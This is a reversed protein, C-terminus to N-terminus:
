AAQEFMDIYNYAIADEDSTNLALSYIEPRERLVHEGTDKDIKYSYVTTFCTLGTVGEVDLMGSSGGSQAIEDADKGSDKILTNWLSACFAVSAKEQESNFKKAVTADVVEGDSNEFAEGNWVFKREVDETFLRAFKYCDRYRRELTRKYIEHDTRAPNQLPLPLLYNIFPAGRVTGGDNGLPLVSFSLALDGSGAFVVASGKGVKVELKTKNKYILRPRGENNSKPGTNDHDYADHDDTTPDYKLFTM